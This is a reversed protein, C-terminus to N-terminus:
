VLQIKYLDKSLENLKLRISNDVVRDGIRIIIGGIIDKDVTYNMEFSEYKTTSLLKNEVKKKQDETMPTATTIYAVGIKKYEKVMAIFYELIDLIDNQREKKIALVLFGVMDESVRGTFVNELVSIKEEKDIKPHNLLKILESNMLFVEKILDAEEFLLDLKDEELALEFLADGYTKSVLKAM